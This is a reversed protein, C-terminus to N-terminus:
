PRPLWTAPDLNYFRTFMRYLKPHHERMAHGTEFFCETAVSFFEMPLTAGYPDLLTEEGSEASRRLSRYETALTENWENSTYVEGTEDIGATVGYVEDLQHAFEHFILNRGTFPEALDLEIDRWSLVLSGVGWSEGSRSEVGETVIGAADEESVEAYYDAPYVLIAKLDPYYGAPEGLILITAYASIVVRKEEDMELGGCGEFIKDTMIVPMHRRLEERLRDPLYRYYPVRTELIRQWSEPFERRRLLYRRISRILPM